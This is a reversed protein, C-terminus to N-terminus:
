LFEELVFYELCLSGSTVEMFTCRKSHFYIQERVDSVNRASVPTKSVPLNIDPTRGLAQAPSKGCTMLM